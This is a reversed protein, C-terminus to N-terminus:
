IQSREQTPHNKWVENEKKNKINQCFKNANKIATIFVLNIDALVLQNDLIMSCTSKISTLLKIVAVRLLVLYFFFLAVLLLFGSSTLAPM